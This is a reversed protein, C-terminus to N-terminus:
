GFRSVCFRVCFTFLRSPDSTKKKCEMIGSASLTVIVFYICVCSVYPFYLRKPNMNDFQQRIHLRFGMNYRNNPMLINKNPM